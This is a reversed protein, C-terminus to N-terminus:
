VEHIKPTQFQLYNHIKNNYDSLPTFQFFLCSCSKVNTLIPLKGAISVPNNM